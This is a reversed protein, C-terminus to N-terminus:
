SNPKTSDSNDPVFSPLNNITNEYTTWDLQLEHTLQREINTAFFHEKNYPALPSDGPESTDGYKRRFEYQQDFKDVDFQSVDHRMCLVAEVLEHIAVCIESYTDGLRSVTILLGESSVQWDGCTDYRQEKHDVIKIQINM